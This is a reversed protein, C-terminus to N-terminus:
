KAEKKVEKKPKKAANGKVGKGGAKRKEAKKPTKTSAVKTFKFFDDM